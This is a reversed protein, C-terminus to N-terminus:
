PNDPEKWAMLSYVTFWDASLSTSAESQRSLLFYISNILHFVLPKRRKIILFKLKILISKVYTQIIMNNLYYRLVVM